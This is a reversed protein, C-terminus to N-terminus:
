SRKSLMEVDAELDPPDKSLRGAKAQALGIRLLEKAAENEYLWAENAPIAVAVKLLIQGPTTDDVIFTHNAFRNGLAVRGKSDALKITMKKGGEKTAMGM